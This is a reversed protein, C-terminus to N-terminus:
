KHGKGAASGPMGATRFPVSSIGLLWLRGPGAVGVIEASKGNGFIGCRSFAKSTLVTAIQSGAIALKNSRDAYM